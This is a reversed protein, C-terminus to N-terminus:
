GWTEPPPRDNGERYTHVFHALMIANCGVAGFHHVGSEPDNAEGDIVKMLHRKICAMPISWKMGRAWNWPAYKKAGFDFQEGIEYFFLSLGSLLWYIAEDDGEEFEALREFMDIARAQATDPDFTRTARYYNFLVRAPIYEMKPKNDNFRAGSGRETSTV